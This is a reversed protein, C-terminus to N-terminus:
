EKPLEPKPINKLNTPVADLILNHFKSFAQGTLKIREKWYQRLAKQVPQKLEVLHDFGSEAIALFTTDGVADATESIFKAAAVNYTAKVFDM